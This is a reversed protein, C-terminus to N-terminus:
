RCLGAAHCANHLWNGPHPDATAPTNIETDILALAEALSPGALRHRLDAARQTDPDRRKRLDDALHGVWSDLRQRLAAPDAAGRSPQLDRLRWRNSFVPVFRRGSGDFFELARPCQHRPTNGIDDDLLARVGAYTHVFSDDSSIALITTAGAFAGAAEM